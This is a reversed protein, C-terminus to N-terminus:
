YREENYEYIGRGRDFAAGSCFNILKSYCKNHNTLNNFMELNNIFSDLKDTQGRKGGQFATHVVVDFQRGKFYDRVSKADTLDVESRGISTVEYCNSKLEEILEKGLFGNRGTVLVKM